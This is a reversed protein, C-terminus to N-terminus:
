SLSRNSVLNQYLSQIEKRHILEKIYKFKLVKMYLNAISGFNDEIADDIM